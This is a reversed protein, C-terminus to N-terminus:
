LISQYHVVIAEPKAEDKGGTLSRYDVNARPRCGTENIVDHHLGTTEKACVFGRFNKRDLDVSRRSGVPDLELVPLKLRRSLQSLLVATGCHGSDYIIVKG